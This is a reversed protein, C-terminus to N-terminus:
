AAGSSASGLEAIWDHVQQGTGTLVWANPKGRAADGGQNEVLGLKHLRRWSSPPRASAGIGAHEGVPRNSSGPREAVSVLVRMTRYTLRM